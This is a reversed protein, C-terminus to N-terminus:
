PKRGVAGIMLNEVPDRPTLEPGDPWWDPLTILGPEILELGDFYAAIEERTRFRGTGMPSHLFTEELRTALEALEENEAGPNFFHSLVFYSGSPLADIYRAVIGGPDDEDAIHHMTGIHYLAYPVSLDINTTVAPNALLKEPETFDAVAFHTRENEELLARGHASVIPDNDVYVVTAESNARQAAQHTNEVTPLGSGCDLFQDMGAQQALFRTVRILFGRNDWALTGIEPAVDLLADRVDRDVTYNDKGGLVADYSRAISATGTDITIPNAAGSETEGHGTMVRCCLTILQTPIRGPGGRGTRQSSMANTISEPM